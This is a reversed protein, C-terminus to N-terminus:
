SQRRLQEPANFRRGDGDQGFLCRWFGNVQTKEFEAFQEAFAVHLKRTDRAAATAVPTVEPSALAVPAPPLVWLSLGVLGSVRLRHRSGACCHLSM